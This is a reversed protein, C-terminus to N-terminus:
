AIEKVEAVSRWRGTALRDGILETYFTYRDARYVSEVYEFPRDFQDYTIRRALLVPTGRQFGLLEQERLRGLAAELHQEARTPVIDYRTLLLSYLSQSDMYETLLQEYGPFHLWALELAIPEEDVLRLRELVIVPRNDPVRLVKQVAPRPMEMELRLVRSGPQQGRATAEDSFGTLRLLKQQVKPHAVFSGRGQERVLLGENVLDSLAQRVTMRSINYQECLERESPILDGPQWEGTEIKARLAERLQYYKPLPPSQGAV